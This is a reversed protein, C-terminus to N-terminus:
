SRSRAIGRQLWAFIQDVDWNVKWERHILRWIMLGIVLFRVFRLTGGIQILVPELEKEAFGLSTGLTPLIWFWIPFTMYNVLDFTIASARLWSDERLLPALFPILWVIWQPSYFVALSIFVLLVVVSRRLLADLDAIPPRLCASLAVALVGLRFIGGQWGGALGKPLLCGYITMGPEPPRMIQFKYPAVVATVDAGWLLPALAFLCTGSYVILFRVALTRQPWLYRIILPVVLVPYVKLLTGVGFAIAAAGIKKRTLFAMGFATCLAPLIDYRNITFFVAGPLLLLFWGTRWEPPYLWRVVGVLVIWSLVMVGFYFDRTQAFVRWIRLQEDTEPDHSSLNHYASDPLGPPIPIDRWNPQIWYGARFVLLAAHPYELFYRSKPPRPSEIVKSYAPYPVWRPPAEAGAQRGLEANLGRLAMAGLDFEDYVLAGLAWPTKRAILRDTQRIGWWGGIMVVPVSLLLVLRLLSDTRARNPHQIKM